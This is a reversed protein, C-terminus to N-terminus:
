KKKTSKECYEHSSFTLYAINSLPDPRYTSHLENGAAVSISSLYNNLTNLFLPTVSGFFATLNLLFNHLLSNNTKQLHAPVAPGGLLKSVTLLLLSSHNLPCFSFFPLGLTSPLVSLFELIIIVDFTTVIRTHQKSNTSVM